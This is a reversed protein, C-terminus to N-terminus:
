QPRGPTSRPRGPSSGPPPQDAPGRLTAAPSNGYAARYAAAFRGPNVFGWRGAIAAVTDGRAPDGCRLEHHACDLRVRRLYGLPTEDLHRRFALQVARVTVGAAAAIDGVCIDSQPSSEIFAIARRLTESHGDHRDVATEPPPPVASRTDGLRPVAMLAAAAILRELAGVFLPMDPLTPDALLASRVHEFTRAWMRAAARVTAHPGATAGWVGAGDQTAAVEDILVPDITALDIHPDQVRLAFSRGPAALVMEGAVYQRRRPGSGTTIRGSNLLGVHLGVV